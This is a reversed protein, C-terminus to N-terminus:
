NGYQLEHAKKLYATIELLRPEIKEASDYSYQFKYYADKFNSKFILVRGEEQTWEADSLYKKAWWLATWAKNVVVQAESNKYWTSKLSQEALLVSPKLANIKSNALNQYESSKKKWDIPTVTIKGVVKSQKSPKVDTCSKYNEITPYMIDNPDNSHKFGIAHGIEHETIQIAYERSVLVWKKDKFCGLTIAIYPKGYDNDTNTTYYGLKGELYQSAWTVVFDAQDPNDVSYFNLSPIRDEWYKTAQYLVDGFNKQWPVPM